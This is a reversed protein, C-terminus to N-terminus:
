IIFEEVMFEEVMFNELMVKEVMFESQFRSTFKAEVWTKLGWFNYSFYLKLLQLQMM